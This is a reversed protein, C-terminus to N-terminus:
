DGIRELAKMALLDAFRVAHELKELVRSGRPLNPQLAAALVPAPGVILVVSVSAAEALLAAIEGCAAGPDWGSFDVVIMGYRLGSASRLFGRVADVKSGRGARGVRAILCDANVRATVLDIGELSAIAERLAVMPQLLARTRAAGRWATADRLIGLLDM